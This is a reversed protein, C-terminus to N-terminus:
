ASGRTSLDLYHLPMIWGEDAALGCGRIVCIGGLNLFGDIISQGCQFEGVVVDTGTISDDEFRVPDLLVVFAIGTRILPLVYDRM